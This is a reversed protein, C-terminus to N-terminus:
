RLSEEAALALEVMREVHLGTTDTADGAGVLLLDVVGGRVAPALGM